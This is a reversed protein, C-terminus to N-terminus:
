LKRALYEGYGPLESILANAIRSSLVKLWMSLHSGQCDITNLGYRWENSPHAAVIADPLSILKCEEVIEAMRRVIWQDLAPYEDDIACREAWLKRLGAVSTDRSKVYSILKYDWEDFKM